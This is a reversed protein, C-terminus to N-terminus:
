RGGERYLDDVSDDALPPAVEARSPSRRKSVPLPLPPQPSERGLLAPHNREILDLVAGQFRRALDPDAWEIQADFELKGAADRTQRGDRGIRATRPLGVFIGTNGNGTKIVACGRLRLGSFELDLVGLLPGHGVVKVQTIRLRRDASV